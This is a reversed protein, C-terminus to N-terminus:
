CPQAGEPSEQYPLIREKRKWSRTAASMGQSIAVDRWDELAANEFTERSWRQVNHTHTHTLAVKRKYPYKHNYRPGM